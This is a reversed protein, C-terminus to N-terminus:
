AYVNLVLKTFNDKHIATIYWIIDFQSFYFNPFPGHHGDQKELFSKIFYDYNKESVILFDDQM